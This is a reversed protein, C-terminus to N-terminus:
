NRAKSKNKFILKMKLISSYNVTQETFTYILKNNLIKFFRLVNPKIEHTTASIYLFMASFINHRTLFPYKDVKM